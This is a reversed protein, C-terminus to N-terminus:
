WKGGIGVLVAALVAAAVVIVATAVSGAKCGWITPRSEQRARLDNLLAETTKDLKRQDEYTGEAIERRIRAIRCANTDRHINTNLEKRNQKM